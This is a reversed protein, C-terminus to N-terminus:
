SDLFSAGAYNDTERVVAEAIAGIYQEGDRLDALFPMEGLVPVGGLEAVVRPNDELIAQEHTAEALRNFVVGLLHIGRYRLAAITLLTHNICGLKNGAVLLTPLGLQTVLDATLLTRTLPTLAGGAGEVLVLDYRAALEGYARTIVEPDVTCGAQEAALHPSAPLPFCYPNVLRDIEEGAAFNGLAYHGAIDESQETCGTQVWKQTIIRWGQRHYYGALLGTILTKGIGTDTGTIFLGKM